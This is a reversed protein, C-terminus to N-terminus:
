QGRTEVWWGSKERLIFTYGVIGSRVKV